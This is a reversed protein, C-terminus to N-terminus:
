HKLQTILSFFPSVHKLTNLLSSKRAVILWKIIFKKECKLYLNSSIKTLLRRTQWFFRCHYILSIWSRITFCFFFFFLTQEVLFYMKFNFVPFNASKCRLKIYFNNTLYKFESTFHLISTFFYFFNFSFWSTCFSM